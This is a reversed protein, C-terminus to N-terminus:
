CINFYDPDLETGLQEVIGRSQLINAVMITVENNEGTVLITSNNHRCIM